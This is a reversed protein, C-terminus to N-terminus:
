AKSTQRRTLVLVVVVVLTVLTTLGALAPWSLGFRAIRLLLQVQNDAVQGWSVYDQLPVMGHGYQYIFLLNWAVLVGLTGAAILVTALRRLDRTLFATGLAFGMSLEIFMRGGFSAGQFWNSWSGVLYVQLVFSSLLLRALLDGRVALLVLGLVAIAVLPTWSFLGHESSVLVDFWHPSSWDFLTGGHFAQTYPDVIPKGYLVYWAYMQPAFGAVTALGAAGTSYLWRTLDTSRGAARRGYLIAYVEYAGVPVAYLVNQLRTAIMLGLVMGIVLSLMLGREERRILWLYFFSCVLFFSVPHSVSPHFYMYAPLSTAFWIGALGILSPIPRFRRRCLVYTLILGFLAYLASGLAIAYVYQASYGDASLHAGFRDALVTILHAALYFPSWLLAPGVSWVNNALGTSTPGTALMQMTTPQNYHLYEDRFDLDHDIVTSRLYAFYGVGDGHITPPVAIFMSLSAVFVAVILRLEWRAITPPTDTSVTAATTGVNMTKRASDGVIM